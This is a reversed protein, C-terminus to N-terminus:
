RRSRRVGETAIVNAVIVAGVVLLALKIFQDGAFTLPDDILVVEDCQLSPQEVEGTQQNQCVFVGPSAQVLKFGPRCGLKPKACLPIKGM